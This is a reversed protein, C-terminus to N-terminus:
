DGLERLRPAVRPLPIFNTRGRGRFPPGSGEERSTEPSTQPGQRARARAPATPRPKHAGPDTRGPTACRRSQTDIPAGKAPRSTPPVVTTAGGPRGLPTRCHFYRSESEKVASDRRDVARGKQLARAATAARPWLSAPFNFRDGPRLLGRRVRRDRFRPGSSGRCWPPRVGPPLLSTARGYIAM